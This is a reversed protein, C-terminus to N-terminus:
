FVLNECLKEIKEVWAKAKKGSSDPQTEAFMKVLEKRNMGPILSAAWAIADEGTRWSKWPADVVTSLASGLKVQLQRVIEVWDLNQQWEYKVPEDNRYVRAFCCDQGPAIAITIPASLQSRSLANLSLLLGKSFVTELGSRIVYLRDARMVVDLKANEKGKYEKVTLRIDTVIGKM